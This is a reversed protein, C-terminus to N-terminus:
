RALWRSKRRVFVEMVLYVLFAEPWLLVGMLLLPLRDVSRSFALWGVTHFGLLLLFWIWFRPLRLCKKYEKLTYGFVLAGSVVVWIAGLPLPPIEKDRSDFYLIYAVLAAVVILGTALYILNDRTHPKM